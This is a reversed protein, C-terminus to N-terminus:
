LNSRPRPNTVVPFTVIEYPIQYPTRPMARYDISTVPGAPCASAVSVSLQNATVKDDCRETDRGGRYLRSQSRM